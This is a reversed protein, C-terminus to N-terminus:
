LNIYDEIPNFIWHNYIQHYELRQISDMFNKFTEYEPTEPKTLSYTPNRLIWKLQNNHDLSIFATNLSYKEKFLIYLKTTKKCNKEIYNDFNDSNIHKIQESNFGILNTWKSGYIRINELDAYDLKKITLRKM